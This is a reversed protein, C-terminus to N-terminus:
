DHDTYTQGVQGSILPSVVLDRGLVEMLSRLVEGPRSVSSSGAADQSSTANGWLTKVKSELEAPPLDPTPNGARSRELDDALGTLDARLRPYLAVSM